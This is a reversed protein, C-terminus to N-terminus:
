FGLVAGYSNVIFIIISSAALLCKITELLENKLKLQFLLSIFVPLCLVVASYYRWYHPQIFVNSSLVAILLTFTFYCFANLKSNSKLRIIYFIIILCISVFMIVMRQIRFYKSNSVFIGWTDNYSNIYQYARVFSNGILLPLKDSYSYLFEIIKKIFLPLIPLIFMVKKILPLLIRLLIFLYASSHIFCPTIYLILTYINKKNQILDKYVALIIISFACINRVNEIISFLPLQMFQFVLLVAAQRSGNFRRSIDNIIYTGIGYVTITSIAPLLHYIGINGIIWFVSNAVFLEKGVIANNFSGLSTGKTDQLILFYRALDGSPTHVFSVIFISLIYLVMGVKLSIIEYYELLFITLVIICLIILLLLTEM